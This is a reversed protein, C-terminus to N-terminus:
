VCDCNAHCRCVEM